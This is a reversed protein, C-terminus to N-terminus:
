NNQNNLTKYVLLCGNVLCTQIKWCGRKKGFCFQIRLECTERGDRVKERERDRRRGEMREWRRERLKEREYSDRYIKKVGKEGIAYRRL